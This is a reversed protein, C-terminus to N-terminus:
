VFVRSASIGLKCRREPRGSCVAEQWARPTLEELRHRRNLTCPSPAKITEKAGPIFIVLLGCCLSSEPPVAFRFDKWVLSSGKVFADLARGATVPAGPACSVLPARAGSRAEWEAQRSHPRSCAAEDRQAATQEDVVSPFDRYRRRGRASRLIGHPSVRLRRLGLRVCM